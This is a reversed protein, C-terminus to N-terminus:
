ARPAPKGRAGGPAAARRRAPQAGGPATRRRRQGRHPGPLQRLEDAQKRLEDLTTQLATDLRANHVALGVQRALETLVRDDEESFADATAPREAVILGLLEGAHSVPAVRVQGPGRGDLLAPLWVSAWAHGSVGARAVVPRERAGVVISRPGTDPM